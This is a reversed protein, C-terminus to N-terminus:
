QLDLAFEPSVGSVGEKLQLDEAPVVAPAPTGGKNESMNSM